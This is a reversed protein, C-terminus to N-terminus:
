MGIPKYMIFDTCMMSWNIKNINMLTDRLISQVSFLAIFQLCFKVIYEMSNQLSFDIHPIKEHLFHDFLFISIKKGGVNM